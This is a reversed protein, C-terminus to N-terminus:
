WYWKQVGSKEAGHKHKYLCLDSQDIRGFSNKVPYWLVYKFILYKLAGVAYGVFSFVPMHLRTSHIVYKVSLLSAVWL